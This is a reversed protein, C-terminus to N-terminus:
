STPAFAYDNRFSTKLNLISIYWIFILEQNSNSFDQCDLTTSLIKILFIPLFSITLFFPMFILVLKNVWKISKHFLEAYHCWRSLLKKRSLFKTLHINIAKNDYATLFINNRISVSPLVAGRGPISGPDGAHCAPISVVISDLISCLYIKNLSLRSSQFMFFLIHPLLFYWYPWHPPRVWSM